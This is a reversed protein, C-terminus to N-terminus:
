AARREEQHATTHQCTQAMPGTGSQLREVRAGHPCAHDAPYTTLCGHCLVVPIFGDRGRHPQEPAARLTGHDARGALRYLAFAGRRLGLPINHEERLEHIRPAVRPIWQGGDIAPTHAFDEATIGEPHELMALYLRRRDEAYDASM